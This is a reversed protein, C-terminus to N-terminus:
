SLSSPTRAGPNITSIFNVIAVFLESPKKTLVPTLRYDILRVTRAMNNSAMPSLAFVAVFFQRVILEEIQIIALLIHTGRAGETSVLTVAM